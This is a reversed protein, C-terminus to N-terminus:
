QVIERADSWRRWKPVFEVSIPTFLVWTDGWKHMTESVVCMVEFSDRRDQWRVWVARNRLADPTHTNIDTSTSNLNFM